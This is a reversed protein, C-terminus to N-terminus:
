VSTLVFFAGFHPYLMKKRGEPSSSLRILVVKAGEPNFFTKQSICSVDVQQLDRQRQQLLELDRVRQLQELRQQLRQPLQQRPRFYSQDLQRSKTSIMSASSSLAAALLAFAVSLRWFRRM